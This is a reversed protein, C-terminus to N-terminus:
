FGADSVPRALNGLVVLQHSSLVHEFFRTMGPDPEGVLQIAGRRDV